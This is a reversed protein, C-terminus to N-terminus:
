KLLDKKTLCPYPSAPTLLIFKFFFFLIEPQVLKEQSFIFDQSLYRAVDLVTSEGRLSSWKGASQLGLM